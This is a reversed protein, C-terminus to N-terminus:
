TAPKVFQFAYLSARRMVFLLRVARGALRSVDPRGQWTIRHHVADGRLRDCDALAYGPVPRGEADQIEVAISGRKASVNLELEQGSFVLPKTTLVGGNSPADLSVFGDLRLRALGIGAARGEPWVDWEFPPVREQRWDLPGGHFDRFGNYFFLIEDGKVQPQAVGYIMGMDWRGDAGRSILPARDFSRSWKVGDRSYALQLEISGPTGGFEEAAAQHPRWVAFFEPFGLYVGEYPWLHM